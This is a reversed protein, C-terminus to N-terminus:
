TISVVRSSDNSGGSFCHHSNQSNLTTTQDSTSHKHSIIIARNNSLWNDLDSLSSEKHLHEQITPYFIHSPVDASLAGSSKYSYYLTVEAVCLQRRKELQEHISLGHRIQNRHTWVNHVHKWIIHTLTATWHTGSNQKTVQFGQRVLHDLHLSQWLISFRGLFLHEWGISEQSAILPQLQQPYQQANELPSDHLSWYLGEVLLHTLEGSVSTKTCFKRIDEFFNTTWKLRDPHQCRLLHYQDEQPEGCSPCRHDYFPKYKHVRSGTPLLNHVLKSVFKGPLDSNSVSQKHAEWNIQDFITQTWHNTKCLHDMMPGTKICKRLTARFKSTVPSQNHHIQIQSGPFQIKTTLLQLQHANDALKDADCNLQAPLDLENYDTEDDQHGKIWGISVFPLTRLHSLIYQLIDWDSDLTSNAFTPYQQNMKKEIVDVLAKNDCVINLQSTVPASISFAKSLFLLISGIGFAEARFSTIPFGFVRGKGTILKKTKSASVIWGYSGSSPKVSGDSAATFTSSTTTWQDIMRNLSYSSLFQTHSLLLEEIHNDITVGTPSNPLREPVPLALSSQIIARITTASDKTIDIPYADDPPSDSIPMGPSNYRYKWHPHQTHLCWQDGQQRYINGSSSSHLYWNFRLNHHQRIWPGLPDLLKLTQPTHIILRCARRWITWTTRHQPREQILNTPFRSHMLKPIGLYIEQRLKNGCATCMDSLLCVNLYLRCYNIKELEFNAFQNSAIIHDMFFSDNARQHEIHNHKELTAFISHEAMFVRLNKFWVSEIYSLNVQPSELVPQGIGSTFQVWHLAIQFHLSAQTVPTRLHKVLHELKALGQKDCLSRLDIGGFQKPGYVIAKATNRNYGLKPLILRVTQSDLKRLKHSSISNTPFSYLVSPLYISHYYRFACRHDLSSNFLKTAKKMANQQISKFSATNTGTIDNYCGLMKRAVNTSLARMEQLGTGDNADIEITYTEENASLHPKGSPHFSYQIIHYKVKPVELAGGTANLLNSWLQSDFKAKQVLTQIQASPNSFDNISTYCDDVFGIMGIKTTTSSDPSIFTAGFTYSDHAEFLRCSIMSWITPSASSGQGTGYIPFRRSHSFSSNSLGLQTKLLYQAQLLHQSHLNCILQNQGYGRSVLSAINPIIRDYCSTADFDISILPTRTMRVIENQMETIMVPTISDRGPMGGFQTPHLLDNDVAHHMLQRYKIGLIANYDAEYLHIVRLRHIKTNGPEKLIMLNAVKKWRNFVYSNRIAINILQLQCSLLTKRMKEFTPPKPKPPHQDDSTPAELKSAFNHWETVQEEPKEDKDFPIILCKHHGLHLGSPSTSTSEKWSKIKGIWEDDAVFSPVSDLQTTKGLFEILLKSVGELEDDNFEGDLIENSELTSASWDVHERFPSITPFTGLAQGFHTRNRNLLYNEIEAPSTVTIWNTAEKPNAFENEPVQIHNLQSAYSDKLHNLKRNVEKTEEAIIIQKLVKSSVAEGRAKKDDLKTQLENKRLERARKLKDVIIRNIQTIRQRCEEPTTPPSSSSEVRIKQEIPRTMDLKNAFQSCINCLLSKENRLSAIESVFPPDYTTTCKNEAYISARVWDRDLQEATDFDFDSNGFQTLREYFNHFLLEEYKEQVYTARNKKHKSNLIRKKPTLIDPVAEGLLHKLNFDIYFGRHDGKFYLGFPFYGASEISNLLAPSALAYDIRVGSQNRQHTNFATTGIHSDM